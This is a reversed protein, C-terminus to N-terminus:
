SRNKLDDKLDGFGAHAKGLIAKGKQGNSVGSLSIV